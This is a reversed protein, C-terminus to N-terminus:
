TRMSQKSCDSGSGSQNFKTQMNKYSESDSIWIKFTRCLPDESGCFFENLDLESEFGDRIPRRSLFLAVQDFMSEEPHSCVSLFFFRSM